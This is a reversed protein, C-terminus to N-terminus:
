KYGFAYSVATLIASLAALAMYFVGAKRTFSIFRPGSFSRFGFRANLRAFVEPYRYIAYGWGGVWLVGFVMFFVRFQPTILM